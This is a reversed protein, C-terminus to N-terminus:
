AAVRAVISQEAAVQAPEAPLQKFGHKLLRQYEARHAKYDSILNRLEQPSLAALGDFDDRYFALLEDLPVVADISVRRLWAHLRSSSDPRPGAPGNPVQEFAACSHVDQGWFLGGREPAPRDLACRGLRPYEISVFHRCDGCRVRAAVPVRHPLVAGVSTKTVGATEAIVQAGALAREHSAPTVSTVSTCGLSPASMPTVASAPAPTVPTVARRELRELLAELGM